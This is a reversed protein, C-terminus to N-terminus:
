TPLFRCGPLTKSAQRRHPKPSSGPVTSDEVQGPRGGSSGPWRGRGPASQGHQQCRFSSGMVTHKLPSLGRRKAPGWKTSSTAVRGVGWKGAGQAETDREGAQGETRGVQTVMDKSSQRAVCLM